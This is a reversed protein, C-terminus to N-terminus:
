HHMEVVTITKISKQPTNGCFVVVQIMKIVMGLTAKRQMVEWLVLYLLPSLWDKGVLAHFKACVYVCSFMVQLIM